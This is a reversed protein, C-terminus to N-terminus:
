RAAELEARFASLSVETPVFGTDSYTITVSQGNEKSFSLTGAMAAMSAHDEKWGADRFQGRLAV